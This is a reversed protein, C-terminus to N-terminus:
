TNRDLQKALEVFKPDIYGLLQSAKDISIEGVAHLELTAKGAADILAQNVESMVKSLDQMSLKHGDMLAKSLYHSQVVEEINAHGTPLIKRIYTKCDIDPLSELDMFTAIQIPSLMRSSAGLYDKGSKVARMLESDYTLLGIRNNKTLQYLFESDHDLLVQLKLKKSEPNLLPKLRGGIQSLEERNRNRELVKFGLEELHRKLQAETRWKVERDVYQTFRIREKERHVAFAYNFVNSDNKASLYVGSTFVDDNEVKGYEELASSLHSVVEQMTGQTVVMRKGVKLLQNIVRKNFSQDPHSNALVPLLVNADLMFEDINDSASGIVKEPHFFSTQFASAAIALKRLVGAYEKNINTLALRIAKEINKEEISEHPTLFSSLLTPINLVTSSSVGNYMQTCNAEVACIIFEELRDSGISLRNGTSAYFLDFISQIFANLVTQFDEAKYNQDLLLYKNPSPESIRNEKILISIGTKTLKEAQTRNLVFVEQIEDILADFATTKDVLLHNLIFAGSIKSQIDGTGGELYLRAAAYAIGLKQKLIHLAPISSHQKTLILHLADQDFKLSDIFKWIESVSSFEIPEINAESLKRKDEPTLSGSLILAYSRHQFYFRLYTSCYEVFLKIAPDQFSFGIFLFPHTSFLMRLCTKYWETDTHDKYTASDIVISKPRDSDGHLHLISENRCEIFTEIEDKGSSYTTVSEGRTLAVSKEYTKDYNTTIVKFFPVYCLPEVNKLNPKAERIIECITAYFTRDDPANAKILDAARLFRGNQLHDQIKSKADACIKDAAKELLQNWTPLGAQASYGAGLFGVFNGDQVKQKLQAIDM